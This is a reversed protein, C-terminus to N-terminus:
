GGAAGTSGAAAAPAAPTATSNPTTPTPNPAPTVSPKISPKPTSKPTSKASTSSTAKRSSTASHTVLSHTTGSAPASAPATPSATVTATVTVTPVPSSLLADRPDTRPPQVVIGVLDLSSFDVYPKVSGTQVEGALPHTASVVSGVQVGAVFPTQDTSGRTVLGDGPKVRASPDILEVSMDAKQRGSVVATQGDALQVGVHFQPDIALLVTSTSTGVITTRGVLGDGNLVTMDPKLGDISGADITATWEFGDAAAVAIVQAYVLKYQGVSSERLLKNLEDVRHEDFPINRLQQQLSSVQKQLDRVKKSNSGISGVAQAAHRVPRVVDAAVREVPGFWSSATRRASGFAGGGNARYDLTILTFATLLLLALVLRTRRNDRM